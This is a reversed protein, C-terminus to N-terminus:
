CMLGWLLRVCVCMEAVVPLVRLVGRSGGGWAAEGLGQM